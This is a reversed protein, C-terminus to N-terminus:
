AAAQAKRKRRWGLLGLAGLGSAFLPLASPLPVASPATDFTVTAAFNVSTPESLPNLNGGIGAGTDNVIIDLVNLGTVFPGTIAAFSSSADGYQFTFQNNAGGSTLVMFGSGPGFIGESAVNTGNLVLVGRDDIQFTTINLSANTFGAPLTFNLNVGESSATYFDLAPDTSSFTGSLPITNARAPVSVGVMLGVAGLTAVSLTVTKVWRKM